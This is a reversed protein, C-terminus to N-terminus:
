EKASMVGDKDLVRTHRVVEAMINGRMDRVSVFIM